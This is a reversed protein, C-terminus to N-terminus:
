DINHNSNNSHKRDPQPETPLTYLTNRSKPSKQLGLTTIISM